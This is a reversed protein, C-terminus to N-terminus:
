NRLNHKKVVDYNNGRCNMGFPCFGWIAKRAKVFRAPRLTLPWILAAFTLARAVGVDDWHDFEYRKKRLGPELEQLLAQEEEESIFAARVQVQSGLSAVLEQQSGVVLAVDQVPIPGSSAGATLCRRLAVCLVLRRLQKAANRYLKM